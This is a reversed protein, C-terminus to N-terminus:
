FFGEMLCGLYLLIGWSVIFGLIYLLGRRCFFGGFGLFGEFGVCCYGLYLFAFGFYLSFGSSYSPFIFFFFSCINLLLLDYTVTLTFISRYSM